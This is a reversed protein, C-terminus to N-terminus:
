KACADIVKVNKHAAYSIFIRIAEMRTVPAYTEDCDDGELQNYGKAVLRAKNRIVAGSEDLKNKCAWRTGVITHGQPIPVLQWVKNRKFQELEEQMASIWDPELLAEKITRPEVSSM